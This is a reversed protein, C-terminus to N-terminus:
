NQFREETRCTPFLRRRVAITFRDDRRRKLDLILNSNKYIFADNLRHSLAM